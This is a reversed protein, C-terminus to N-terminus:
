CSWGIMPIAPLCKYRAPKLHFRVSCMALLSAIVYCEAIFVSRGPPRDTKKGGQNALRIANEFGKVKFM